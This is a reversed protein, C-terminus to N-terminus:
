SGRVSSFLEVGSRIADLAVSGANPLDCLFVISISRVQKQFPKAIKRLAFVAQARVVLPQSKDDIFRKISSVLQKSGCNGMSKLVRIKDTESESQELLSMLEQLLVYALMRTDLM